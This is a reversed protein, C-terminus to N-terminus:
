AGHAGPCYQRNHRRQIARPPQFGFHRYPVRGLLAAVCDVTKVDDQFPDASQASTETVERSKHPFDAAHPEFPSPVGHAM